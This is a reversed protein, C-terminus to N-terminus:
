MRKEELVSRGEGPKSEWEWTDEVRIRGDALTEVTGISHGTATEHDTNIQTYRIDWEGDTLTGVLYGDVVSGGSYKAWIREGDQGFRFETEGGVEGGENEVGVLTKGDLLERESM